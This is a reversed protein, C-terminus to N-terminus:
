VACGSGDTGGGVGLGRVDGTGGASLGGVGSGGSGQGLASAADGGPAQVLRLGDVGVPTGGTSDIGSGGDLGVGDWDMHRTASGPRACSNDKGSEGSEDGDDGIYYRMPGIAGDTERDKVYGVVDSLGRMYAADIGTLRLGTAGALNRDGAKSDSGDGTDSGADVRLFKAKFEM